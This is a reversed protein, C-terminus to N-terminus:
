RTRLYEQNVLHAIVAYALVAAANAAIPALMGQIFILFCAATINIILVVIILPLLKIARSPVNAAGIGRMGFVIDGAVCLAFAAFQALGVPSGAGFLAAVVTPYVLAVGYALVYFCLLKFGKRLASVHM